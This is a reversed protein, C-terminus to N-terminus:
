NPQTTDRRHLCAKLTPCCHRQISLSTQEISKRAPSCSSASRSATNSYASSYEHSRTYVTIIIDRSSPSHSTPVSFIRPYRHSMEDALWDVWGPSFGAVTCEPSADDVCCLLVGDLLVCSFLSSLIWWNHTLSSQKCVPVSVSATSLCGFLWYLEFSSLIILLALLWDAWDNVVV